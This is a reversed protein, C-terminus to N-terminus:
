KKSGKLDLLNNADNIDNSGKLLYFKGLYPIIIKKDMNIFSSVLSLDSLIKVEKTALDLSAVESTFPATETSTNKIFLLHEPSYYCELHGTDNKNSQYFPKTLNINETKQPIVYISSGPLHEQFGFIGVFINKSNSCLEIMQHPSKLRHIVSTKKTNLSFSLIAQEGSKGMDTFLLTDDKPMATSPIFYSNIHTNLQIKYNISLKKTSLLTIERSYPNYFSIWSGNSHIQPSIGDGIKSISSGDLNVQYIEKLHRLSLYQNFNSDKTIVLKSNNEGSHISYMTGKDGKLIVDAKYNTSLLLEGSTRQYYTYKGDNSIYRIKHTSQKTQMEPLKTKNVLSVAPQALLFFFISLSNKLAM